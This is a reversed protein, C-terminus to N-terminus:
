VLVTEREAAVLQARMRAINVLHRSMTEDRQGTIWRVFVPTGIGVRLEPWRISAGRGWVIFASLQTDSASELGPFSLRAGEVAGGALQLSLLGTAADYNAKAIRPELEHMERGRQTAAEWQQDTQEPSTTENSM